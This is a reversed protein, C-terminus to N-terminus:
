EDVIAEKLCRVVARNMMRTGVAVRLCNPFGLIPGLNRTAIGGKLLEAHVKTSDSPLSVMLFNAQSDVVNVGPLEGLASTLWSREEKVQRIWLEVERRNKMMAIAVAAAISSVPYPYQVKALFEPAWEESALLYGLRLGAMGYAKSFTRLVALNRYGAVLKSLSFEAFEVYAEDLVVLGPFSELLARVAGEDFQNGTPNNPSCVFVMGGKGAQAAVERSPLTFDPGMSATMTEAGAMASRLTYMSFTPTVVVARDGRRLFAQCLLDIAQDAGACPVVCAAPVGVRRSIHSRLEDVARDPYERPDIGAVVRMVARMRGLPIQWNENADLQAVMKRRTGDVSYDYGERRGLEALKEDLWSM